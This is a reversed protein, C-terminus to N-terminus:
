ERCESQFLNISVTKLPLRTESAMFLETQWGSKRKGSIAIMGFFKPM